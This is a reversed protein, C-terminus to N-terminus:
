QTKNPSVPSLVAKATVVSSVVGTLCTVISMVIEPNKIETTFAMHGLYGLALIAALALLRMTWEQGAKPEQPQQQEVPLTM